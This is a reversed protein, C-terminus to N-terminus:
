LSAKRFSNLLFSMKWGWIKLNKLFYDGLFFHDAFEGVAEMNKFHRIQTPDGGGFCVYIIIIIVVGGFVLMDGLFPSLLFYM